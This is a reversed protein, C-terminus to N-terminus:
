GLVESPSQRELQSRQIRVLSQPNLRLGVIPLPAVAQPTVCLVARGAFSGPIFRWNARMPGHPVNISCLIPVLISSHWLVVLCDYYFTTVNQEKSKKRLFAM